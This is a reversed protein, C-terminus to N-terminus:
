HKTQHNCGCGHLHLNNAQVEFINNAVTPLSPAKVYPPARQPLHMQSVIALGLIPETEGSIDVRLKAYHQIHKNNGCKWSTTLTEFLTHSTNRIITYSHSVSVDTFHSPVIPTLEQFEKLQVRLEKLDENRERLDRVGKEVQSLDSSLLGRRLNARISRNQNITLEPELHM